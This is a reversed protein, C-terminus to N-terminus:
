AICFNGVFQGAFVPRKDRITFMPTFMDGNNKSIELGEPTNFAKKDGSSSDSQTSIQNFHVKAGVEFDSRPAATFSASALLM